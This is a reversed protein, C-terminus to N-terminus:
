RRRKKLPGQGPLKQEEDSGSDVEQYIASRDPVKAESADRRVVQQQRHHHQQAAMAASFMSQTGLGPVSQYMSGIENSALSQHLQATSPLSQQTSLQQNDQLSMSASRASVNAHPALINSQGLFAANAQYQSQLSSISANIARPDQSIGFNSNIQRRQQPVGLNTLTHPFANDGIGRQNSGAATASNFLLARAIDTNLGGPQNQLLQVLLSPQIRMPAQAQAQNGSNFPNSGTDITGLMGSYSMNSPGRGMSQMSYRQQQPFQNTANNTSLSSPVQSPPVSVNRSSSEPVSISRTPAHRPLRTPPSAPSGNTNAGLNAVSTRSDGGILAVGPLVMSGPSGAVNERKRGKKTRKRKKPGKGTAKSPPKTDEITSEKSEEKETEENDNNDDDDDEDSSSSDADHISVQRRRGGRQLEWAFGVSNLLQM